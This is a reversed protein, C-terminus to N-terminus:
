EVSTLFLNCLLQMFSCPRSTLEFLPRAGMFSSGGKPSSFASNGGRDARQWSKSEQWWRRKRTMVPGRQVMAAAAGPRRWGHGLRARAAEEELRRLGSGRGQPAMVAAVVPMRWGRGLQVMATAAGPRQSGHGPRATAAEEELRRRGSGHVQRVTVEAVGPRRDHGPPAKAM